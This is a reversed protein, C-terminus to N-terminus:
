TQRRCVLASPGSQNTISSCKDGSEDRNHLQKRVGSSLEELMLEQCAQEDHQLEVAIESVVSAACRMVSAAWVM